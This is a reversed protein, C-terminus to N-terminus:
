STLDNRTIGQKKQVIHNFHRLKFGCSDEVVVNGGIDEGGFLAIMIGGAAPIMRGGPKLLRRRADEISPLVREALLESSLIESVRIDAPEPLDAGVKLDSSLRAIVNVRHGLGNDAIVRRATAAILPEAECTTM